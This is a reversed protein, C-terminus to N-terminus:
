NVGILHTTYAQIQTHMNVNTIDDDIQQRKRCYITHIATQKAKVTQHWVNTETAHLGNRSDAVLLVVNLELALGRLMPM